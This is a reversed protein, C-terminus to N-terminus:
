EALATSLNKDVLKVEKLQKKVVLQKILPNNLNHERQPYLAIWVYYSKSSIFISTRYKFVFSNISISNLLFNYM